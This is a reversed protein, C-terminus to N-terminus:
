TARARQNTVVPWIHTSGHDGESTTSASWLDGTRTGSKSTCGPGGTGPAVTSCTRLAAASGGKARWRRLPRAGGPLGRLCRVVPARLCTLLRIKCSGAGERWAREVGQGRPAFCRDQSHIDDSAGNDILYEVAELNGAKAARHLPTLGYTDAARMEGGHTTLWRIMDMHGETAALHMPTVSRWDKQRGDYGGDFGQSRIWARHSCFCRFAKTKRRGTCPFVSIILNSGLYRAEKDTWQM